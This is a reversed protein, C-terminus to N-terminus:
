LVFAKGRSVRLVSIVPRGNVTRSEKRYLLGINFCEIRGRAYHFCSFPCTLFYFKERGKETKGPHVADPLRHYMAQGHVATSRCDDNM